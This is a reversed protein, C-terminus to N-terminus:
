AMVRRVHIDPSVDISYYDTLPIKFSRVLINAAMTAIKPGVGRFELLRYVLEASAPQDSWIKSADGQYRERILAIAEVLNRSMGDVFRHLPEPETMIRRVQPFSLRELREFEFGGIADSFRFPVMWAKEARIQRDMICALVFAHPVHEIDNLLADARADGTFTVPTWPDSRVREGHELLLRLAYKNDGKTM